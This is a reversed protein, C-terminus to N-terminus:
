EASRTPPKHGPPYTRALQEPTPKRHKRAAKPLRASIADMLRETEAVADPGSLTLPRGVRVRVKPPRFVKLVNPVRSSRPWIRETGWIGIPVVPAGTAFALRATGTRGKLETEFFAPGRPITGQPLIIVVEGAELARIAERLPRDSGTGRDVPIGGLARAIEGIVPADFLERKALFRVPRGLEAAVLALAVVDFYSRHNSAVIVPGSEPIRDVGEIDFRAYPFTEPRVILRLLHYPEYGAVKPVGPPRDWYEIPWRMATAVVRLRPDPKIAHPHGVANLLPTDYISDSYAHSLSLDIGATEAYRRVARLKGPGWVFEGEIGGSLAGNARAYRTAVVHDFGLSDALPKVLDAPTTTALVLLRGEQRHEELVGRAFPQVLDHLEAAALVGAQEFEAVSWGCVFQSAARVLAMMALSEGLLDYVGYFFSGGPLKPSGELLGQARLAKDIYPGSAGALLTRDLDVFVAGRKAGFATRRRARPSAGGAPADTEGTQASPRELTDTPSQV